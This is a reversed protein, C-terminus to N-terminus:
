GPSSPPESQASTMREIKEAVASILFAELSLGHLCAMETAKRLVDERLQIAVEHGFREDNM